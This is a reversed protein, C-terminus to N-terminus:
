ARGQKGELRRRARHKLQEVFYAAKRFERLEHLEAEGIAGTMELQELYNVRALTEVSHQFEVIQYLSPASTVFDLLEEYANTM